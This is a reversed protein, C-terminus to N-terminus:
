KIGPIEIHEEIGRSIGNRMKQIKEPIAWLAHLYDGCEKKSLQCNWKDWNRVQSLFCKLRVKAINQDALSLTFFKSFAKPPLFTSFLWNRM